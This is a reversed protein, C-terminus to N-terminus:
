SILTIPTLVSTRHGKPCSMTNPGQFMVTVPGDAEGTELSGPPFVLLAVDTDASDASNGNANDEPQNNRHAFRVPRDIIAIGHCTRVAPNEDASSSSASSSALLYGINASASSVIFDVTFLEPIGDLAIEFRHPTSQSDVDVRVISLIRRGLIYTGGNVACSRCTSIKYKTLHLVFDIFLGAFDKHLREWVVM